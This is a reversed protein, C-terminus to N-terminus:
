VPNHQWCVRALSVCFERKTTLITAMLSNLTTPRSAALRARAIRLRGGITHIMSSKCRCGCECLFAVRAWAGFVPSLAHAVTHTHALFDATPRACPGHPSVVLSSCVIESTKFSLQTVKLSPDAVYDAKAMARRPPAITEDTPPPSLTSGKPLTNTPAAQRRLNNLAQDLVLCRDAPFGGAKFADGNLTLLKKGDFGNSYIADKFDKLDNERLWRLVEGNNWTNPDAPLPAQDPEVLVSEPRKMPVRPPQSSSTEESPLPQPDEYDHQDDVDEYNPQELVAAAAAASANPHRAPLSPASALAEPLGSNAGNYNEYDHASADATPGPKHSDPDEYVQEDSAAGVPESAAYPKPVSPRSPSAIAVSDADDYTDEQLPSAAKSPDEYADSSVAQDPDEYVDSPMGSSQSADLGNIYGGTQQLGSIADDLADDAATGPLPPLGRGDISSRNSQNKPTSVAAPPGAPVAAPPPGAMAVEAAMPIKSQSNSRRRFMRGISGLRSRKTTGQLFEQVTMDESFSADAKAM